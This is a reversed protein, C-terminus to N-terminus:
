VFTASSSEWSYAFVELVLSLCLFHYSRSTFSFFPLRDPILCSRVVLPHLSLPLSSRFFLHSSRHTPPECLLLFSRYRPRLILLQLLVCRQQPRPPGNEGLKIVGFRLSQLCDRYSPVVLDRKM